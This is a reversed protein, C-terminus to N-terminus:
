RSRYCFFVGFWWFCVVLFVLLWGGLWAFMFDGWVFLFVLVVLVFIETSAVCNRDHKVNYNWPWM